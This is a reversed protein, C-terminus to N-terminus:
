LSEGQILSLCELFNDIAVSSGIMSWTGARHGNSFDVYLVTARKLDLLFRAMGSNDPHTGLLYTDYELQRVQVDNLTWRTINTNVILDIFSSRINSDPIIFTISNIGYGYSSVGFSSGTRNDFSFLSCFMDGDDDVNVEVDFNENKYFMSSDIAHAPTALLAAILAPVLKM